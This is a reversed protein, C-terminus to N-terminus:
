FFLTSRISSFSNSFHLVAHYTYRAKNCQSMEYWLQKINICRNFYSFAWIGSNLIKQEYRWSTQFQSPIWSYATLGWTCILMESILGSGNLSIYEMHSNGCMCLQQLYPYQHEHTDSTHHENTGRSCQVTTKYASPHICWRVATCKCACSSWPWWGQIATSCVM